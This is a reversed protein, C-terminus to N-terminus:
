QHQPLAEVEPQTPRISLLPCVAHGLLSANEGCTLYFLGWLKKGGLNKQVIAPILTHEVSDKGFEAVLCNLAQMATLSGQAVEIFKSEM